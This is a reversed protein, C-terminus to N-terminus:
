FDNDIRAAKEIPHTRWYREAETEEEEEQEPESEQEQEQIPSSYRTIIIPDPNTHNSPGSQQQNVIPGAGEGSIGPLGDDEIAPNVKIYCNHVALIDSNKFWM